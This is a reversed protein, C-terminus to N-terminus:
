KKVKLHELAILESIRGIGSILISKVFRQEKYNRIIKTKSIIM